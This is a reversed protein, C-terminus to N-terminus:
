TTVFAQGEVNEHQRPDYGNSSTDLYAVVDYCMRPPDGSFEIIFHTIHNMNIWVDRSLAKIWM